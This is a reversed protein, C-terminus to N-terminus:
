QTKGGEVPTTLGGHLSFRIGATEQASFELVPRLGLRRLEELYDAVAGHSPLVGAMRYGDPGTLSLATLRGGAPLARLLTEVKVALSKPAFSRIQALRASTEKLAATLRANEGAVGAMRGRLQEQGHLSAALSQTVGGLYLGTTTCALCAAALVALCARWFRAARYYAPKLRPQLLNLRAM